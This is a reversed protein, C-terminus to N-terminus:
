YLQPTHFHQQWTDIARQPLEIPLRGPNSAVLEIFPPDAEM